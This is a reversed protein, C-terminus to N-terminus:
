KKEEVKKGEKNEFIKYKSCKISYYSLHDKGSKAIESRYYDIDAQLNTVDTPTVEAREADNKKSMDCNEHVKVGTANTDVKAKLAVLEAELGQIFDEDIRFEEVVGTIGVEMGEVEDAKFNGSAGADIKLTINTDQGMMFMKTGGHKCTHTVMGTVKVEKGVMEAFKAEMQECTMADKYEPDGTKCSVALFTVAVMMLFLVKKM